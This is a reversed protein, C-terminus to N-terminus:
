RDVRRGSYVIYHVQLPAKHLKVVILHINSPDAGMLIFSKFYLSGGISAHGIEIVPLVPYGELHRGIPLM